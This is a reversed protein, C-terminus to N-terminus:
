IRQLAKMNQQICSPESSERNVLSVRHVVNRVLLHKNHVDLIFADAAPYRQVVVKTCRLDSAVLCIM